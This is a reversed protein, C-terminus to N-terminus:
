DIGFRHSPPIRNFLPKSRSTTRDPVTVELMRRCARAAAKDLIAQRSRIPKRPFLRRISESSPNFDGNGDLVSSTSLETKATWYKEDSTTSPLFNVANQGQACDIDKASDYRDHIAEMSSDVSDESSSPSLGVHYHSDQQRLGSIGTRNMYKTFSPQHRITGCPEIGNGCRTSKEATRLRSEPDGNPVNHKVAYPKTVVTRNSTDALSDVRVFTAGNISIARASGNNYHTVSREETQAPEHSLYSLTKNPDLRSYEDLSTTYSSNSSATTSSTSTNTSIVIRDAQKEFFRSPLRPRQPSKRRFIVDQPEHVVSRSFLDVHIDKRPVPPPLYQWVQKGPSRIVTGAEQEIMASHVIGRERLKSVHVDTARNITDSDSITLLAPLGLRRPIQDADTIADPSPALVWELGLIADPIGLEVGRLISGDTAYLLVKGDHRGITILWDRGSSHVNDVQQPDQPVM